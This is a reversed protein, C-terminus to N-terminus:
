LKALESMVILKHNRSRLASAVKEAKAYSTIVHLYAHINYLEVERPDQQPQGSWRCWIQCIYEVSLRARMRRGAIAHMIKTM